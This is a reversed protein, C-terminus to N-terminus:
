ASTSSSVIARVRKQGTKNIDPVHLDEGFQKQLQSCAEVPDTEEIASHLVSQLSSLRTYFNEMQLNTMKEFLDNNPRVPLRVELRLALEGEHYTTSFGNLMADVFASLASLDDYRYKNQFSDVLSTRPEFLYYAAVTLGIGIPAARGDPSFKIDKWRKLYRIVRRFQARDEPNDAYNSILDLLEKPAAPEWFKNEPSSHPKGRALYLSDDSYADHSYVALDVHYAPEGNLHYQVTICPQKITVDDTHGELADYVWQKVKVPYPFEDHCIDFVIGVDIDFDGHVPIIGTYMAYSGRNFTTYTPTEEDEDDEELIKPLQDHLKGLIIDRKERLTENEDTLKIADHFDELQKQIDAVDPRRILPKDKLGCVESGV